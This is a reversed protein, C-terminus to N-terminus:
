RGVRLWCQAIREAEKLMSTTMRLWDYNVRGLDCQLKCNRAPDPLGTWCTWGENGLTPLKPLNMLSRQRNFRERADIVIEKIVRRTAAAQNLQSEKRDSLEKELSYAHEVAEGRDQAAQDRESTLTALEIRLRELEPNELGRTNGDQREVVSALQNQIAALEKATSLLREEAQLQAEKAIIHGKTAELQDEGARRCEQEAQNLAEEARQAAEELKQIRKDKGMDAIVLATNRDRLREAEGDLRKCLEQLLQCDGQLRDVQLAATECIEDKKQLETRRSERLQEMEAEANFRQEELLVRLSQLEEILRAAQEEAQKAAAQATLKQEEAISLRAQLKEERRRAACMELRAEDLKQARKGAEAHWECAKKESKDLQDRLTSLIAEQQSARHLAASKDDEAQQLNAELDTVRAHLETARALAECSRQEAIALQAQLDLGRRIETEIRGIRQKLAEEKVELDEELKTIQQEHTARLQVLEAHLGDTHQRTEELESELGQVRIAHKATTESKEMAQAQYAKESSQLKVQAQDAREAAAAAMDRSEQLQARLDKVQAVYDAISAVAEDLRKKSADLDAQLLNARGDAITLRQEAENLKERLKSRLKAASDLNAQLEDVLVATTNYDRKIAQIQKELELIHSEFRESNTKSTKDLCNRERTRLDLDHRLDDNKKELEECRSRLKECEKRKSALEATAVTLQVRATESSARAKTIQTANLHLQVQAQEVHKIAIECEKGKDNLKKVAADLKVRVTDSTTEAQSCRAEAADLTSQLQEARKIATVCGEEAARIQAHATERLRTLCEEASRTDEKRQAECRDLEAQLRDARENADMWKVEIQQCRAEADQVKEEVQTQTTHHELAMDTVRTHLTEQIDHFRAESDALKQRLQEVEQAATDHKAESKRLQRRLGQIIGSTETERYKDRVNETTDKHRGQSDELRDKQIAV